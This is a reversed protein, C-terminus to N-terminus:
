VIKEVIFGGIFSRYIRLNAVPSGPIGCARESLRRVTLIVGRVRVASQLNRKLKINESPKTPVHSSPKRHYTCSRITMNDQSVESGRWFTLRKAEKTCNM